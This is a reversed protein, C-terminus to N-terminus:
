GHCRQQCTVDLTCTYRYDVTGGSCRVLCRVYPLFMLLFGGLILNDTFAVVLYCELMLNYAFAVVLLCELVAMVLPM